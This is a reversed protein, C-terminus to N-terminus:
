DNEEWREPNPLDFSYPNGTATDAGRVELQLIEGGEEDEAILGLLYHEASVRRLIRHALIMELHQTIRYFEKTREIRM